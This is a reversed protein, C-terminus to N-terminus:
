SGCESMCSTMGVHPTLTAENWANNCPITSTWKEEEEDQECISVEVWWIRTRPLFASDFSAMSSAMTYALEKFQTDCLNWMTKTNHLVASSYESNLILKCLGMCNGSWFTISQRKVWGFLIYAPALHATIETGETEEQNWDWCEGPISECAWVVCIGTVGSM